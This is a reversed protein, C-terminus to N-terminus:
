SIYMTGEPPCTQSRRPTPSTQSQTDLMEGAWQASCPRWLAPTQLPRRARGETLFFRMTQGFPLGPWVPLRDIVPKVPETNEGHSSWLFLWPSFVSGDAEWGDVPLVAPRPRRICRSEWRPSHGRSSITPGVLEETTPLSFSSTMTLRVLSDIM